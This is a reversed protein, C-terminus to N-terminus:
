LARSKRRFFVTVFVALCVVIFIDGYMMYFTRSESPFIEAMAYGDVFTRAGAEEVAGFVGGKQDIFCSVGTNAARVVPLRNEVARFVSSQVHQFPAGTKGFWADNTINVLFEAGKKALESSLGPFIDEFCILVGFNVFRTERIIREDLRISRETKLKFLTLGSGATCTGIPKDIIMRFWQMHKEFPVYEGFPVLHVKDYSSTIEGGSSILYASNYAYGGAERISGILLPVGTKGALGA